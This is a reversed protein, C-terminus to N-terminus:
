AGSGCPPLCCANEPNCCTPCSRPALCQQTGVNAQCTQTITKTAQTTEATATTKRDYTVTLKPPSLSAEVHWSSETVLGNKTSNSNEITGCDSATCPGDKGNFLVRGSALQQLRLRQLTCSALALQVAEQKMVAPFAEVAANLHTLPVSPKRVITTNFEVRTATLILQDAIFLEAATTLGDDSENFRVEATQGIRDIFFRVRTNAGDCVTTINSVPATPVLAAAVAAMESGAQDVLDEISSPPVDVLVRMDFFSEEGRDVARVAVVNLGEPGLGDDPM